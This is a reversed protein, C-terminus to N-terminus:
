EGDLAQFMVVRGNFMDAVYLRGQADSWAGAPLYFQGAEKGTGGLPMLFRGARDFVLLRDYYSEVVYLRGARDTAVGKPRTLNGVYRGRQGVSGDPKGDRDFLVVRANMSDAVYLREGGYALHTPFNLEGEGEGRRGIVQLLSGDDAFVKIDHARTDAVYVRGRVADRALGTPRDLIGKGFSGLPKGDQGLRVVVGLEADAVLVQGQPGLAIGVPMVFRRRPLAEEWIRLKGAPRDFVFVAHSAGDTVYVRGEDDTVGSQPRKLTLKDQEMVLGVLWKLLKVAGARTDASEPVFNDEGLLQGAYRFRPTEPPEPWTRAPGALPDARMVQRTEACGALALMCALLVAGRRAASSRKAM